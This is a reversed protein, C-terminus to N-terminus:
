AANSWIEEVQTASLTPWKGCNRLHEAVEKAKVPFDAPKSPKLELVAAELTDAAGTATSPAPQNGANFSAYYAKIDEPTVNHFGEERANEVLTQAINNTMTTTQEVWGRVKHPLSSPM